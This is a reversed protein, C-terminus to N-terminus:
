FVIFFGHFIWYFAWFDPLCTTLQFCAIKHFIYLFVCVVRLPSRRRSKRWLRIYGCEEGSSCVRRDALPIHSGVTELVRLTACKIKLHNKRSKPAKLDSFPAKPHERVCQKWVTRLRLHDFTHDNGSKSEVFVLPTLGCIGRTLNKIVNTYCVERLYDINNYSTDIRM